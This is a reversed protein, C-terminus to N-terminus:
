SFGYIVATFLKITCAGSSLFNLFLKKETCSKCRWCKSCISLRSHLRKYSKRRRIKLYQNFKSLSFCKQNSIIRWGNEVERRFLYKRCFRSRVCTDSNSLALSKTYFMKSIYTKSQFTLHKWGLRINAPYASAQLPTV